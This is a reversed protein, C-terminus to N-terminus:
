VLGRKPLEVIHATSVGLNLYVSRSGHLRLDEGPTDSFALGNLSRRRYGWSLWTRRRPRECMVLSIMLTSSPEHGCESPGITKSPFGPCPLVANILAADCM